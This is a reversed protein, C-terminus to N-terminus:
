EVETACSVHVDQEASRRRLRDRRGDEQAEHGGRGGGARGRGAGVCRRGAVARQPARVGCFATPFLSALHCFQIGDKGQIAGPHLTPPAIWPPSPIWNQLTAYRLGLGSARLALCM